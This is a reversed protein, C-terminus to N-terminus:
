KGTSGFGKDGRETDDLYHVEEWDTMIPTVILQAVRDGSQFKFGGRDTVSLIVCIEGRYNSDIVGGLIVIGHNKALGSRPKILGVTFKPISMAIGTRAMIREGGPATYTKTFHDNILEPFFSDSPSPCRIFDRAYLDFGAAGDDARTPIISDNHLKKFKIM